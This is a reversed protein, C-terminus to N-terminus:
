RGETIDPGEDACSATAFSDQFVTWIVSSEPHRKDVDSGSITPENIEVSIDASSPPRLV